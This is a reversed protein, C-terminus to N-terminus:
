NQSLSEPILIEMPYNRVFSGGIQTLRMEGADRFGKRRYFEHADLTSDLTLRSVGAAKAEEFVLDMLRSGFGQSVVKPTLYLGMLHARLKGDFERFHVEAFGEVRDGDEAVWVRQNTIVDARRERDFERNGWGAIEEPTHSRSCVERISRMHADHIGFADEVRARRIVAM